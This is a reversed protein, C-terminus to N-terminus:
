AGADLLRGDTEGFLSQQGPRDGLVVPRLRRAEAGTFSGASPPFWSM